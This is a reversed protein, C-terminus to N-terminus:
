NFAAEHPSRGVVRQSMGTKPHELDDTFVRAPPKDGTPLCGVHAIAVQREKHRFGIFDLPVQLAWILHYPCIAELTLM